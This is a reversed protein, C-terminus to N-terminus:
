VRSERLVAPPLVAELQGRGPAVGDPFNVVCAGGKKFLLIPREKHTLLWSTFRGLHPEHGVLAVTYELDETAAAHNEKLWALLLAPKKGPSLERLELFEPKHDYAKAVIHATQIARKLPSTALLDIRPYLRQLGRAAIKMNRKGRSTLPRKTDSKGKDAFAEREEAKAHRIMLLRM